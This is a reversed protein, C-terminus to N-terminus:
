GPEGYASQGAKGHAVDRDHSDDIHHVLLGEPRVIRNGREMLIALVVNLRIHELMTYSVHFDIRQLGGFRRQSAFDFGNSLLPPAPSAVNEISARVKWRM